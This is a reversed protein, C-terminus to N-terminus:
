GAAIVCERFHDEHAKIRELGRRRLSTTGKISMAGAHNQSFAGGNKRQLVEVQSPLTTRRNQRFNGAVANRCIIKVDFLRVRGTNSRSLRHFSSELARM